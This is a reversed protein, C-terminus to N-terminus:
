RKGQRIDDVKELDIVYEKPMSEPLGNEAFIEARSVVYNTYHGWKRWFFQHHIEYRVHRVGWWLKPNM